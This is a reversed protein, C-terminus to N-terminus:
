VEDEFLHTAYTIMDSQAETAQASLSQYTRVHDPGLKDPSKGFHEAFREVFRLYYRITGAPYNRRELEELMMKRLRTM